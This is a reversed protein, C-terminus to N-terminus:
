PRIIHAEAFNNAVAEHQATTTAPWASSTGQPGRLQHGERYTTRSGKERRKKHTHGAGPWNKHSPVLFKEKKFNFKIFLRTCLGFACPAM